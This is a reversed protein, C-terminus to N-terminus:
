CPWVTEDRFTVMKKLHEWLIIVSSQFYGIFACKKRAVLFVVEVLFGWMAKCSIYFVIGGKQRQFRPSNLSTRLLRPQMIQWSFLMDSSFFVFFVLRKNKPGSLSQCTRTLNCLLPPPTLARHLLTSLFFSGCQWKWTRYKAQWGRLNGDM